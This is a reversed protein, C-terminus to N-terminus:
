YVWIHDERTVPVGDRLKKMQRFYQQTGENGEEGQNVGSSWAEFVAPCSLPALFVAKINVDHGRSVVHQCEPRSQFSDALGIKGKYDTSTPACFM